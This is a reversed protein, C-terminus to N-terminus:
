YPFGCLSWALSVPCAPCGGTYPVETVSSFMTTSTICFCESTPCSCKVEYTLGGVEELQDVSCSEATSAEFAGCGCETTEGAEFFFGAELFGGEDDRAISADFAPRTGLASADPVPGKAAAAPEAGLTAATADGPVGGDGPAIGATGAGGCAQGLSAVAVLALSGFPSRKRTPM